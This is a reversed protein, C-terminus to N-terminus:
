PTLWHTPVGTLLSPTLWHTPVGTLLSPPLGTAADRVEADPKLGHYLLQTVVEQNDTEVLERVNLKELVVGAEFLM